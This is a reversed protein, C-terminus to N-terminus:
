CLKFKNKSRRLKKWSIKRRKQAVPQVNLFTSLCHSIFELNIGAMNAVTWAFLDMNKKLFAVLEEKLPM